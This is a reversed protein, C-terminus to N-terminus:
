KGELIQLENAIKNMMDLIDRVESIAKTGKLATIMLNSLEIFMYRLEKIRQVSDMHPTLYFTILLDIM